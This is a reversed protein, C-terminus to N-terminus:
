PTCARPLRFGFTSGQGYVSSFFVSGGHREVIRKVLYLGFGTGAIHRAERSGIRALPKFLRDKAEDPIGLGTDTVSFEYGNGDPRVRVSIAGGEPTYKIANNILNTVSQALVVGVGDITAPDQPLDASLTHGKSEAALRQANIVEDVLATLSLM